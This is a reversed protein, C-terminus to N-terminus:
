NEKGPWKNEKLFRAILGEIIKSKNSSNKKCYDEFNTKLKSDISGTIVEKM